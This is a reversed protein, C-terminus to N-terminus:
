PRILAALIADGGRPPYAFGRTEPSLNGLQRVTLPFAKLAQAVPMDSREGIPAVVHCTEFVNSHSSGHTPDGRLPKGFHDADIEDTKRKNAYILRLKRANAVLVEHGCEELV